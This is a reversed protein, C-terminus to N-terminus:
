QASKTPIFIATLINFFPFNHRVHEIAIDNTNSFIYTQFDVSDCNKM